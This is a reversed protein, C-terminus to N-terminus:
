APLEPYFDDIRARVFPKIGEATANAEWELLAADALLLDAYQQARASLAIQYSRFRTAVPLYFADALTRKGLLYGGANESVSLYSQWLLDIRAIDQTAARSYGRAVCRRRINMPLEQRLASFGAHMEGIVSRMRARDLARAPLLSVASSNEAAWEAIAISDWVIDTGLAMAPVRGAPTVALVDAIRGEGYGPQDLEIFREEFDIGAWKLSLWARLSWSSYNRNGVYLIPRATQTM